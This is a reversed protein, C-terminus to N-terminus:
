RTIVITAIGLIGEGTALRIFVKGTVNPLILPITQEGESLSGISQTSLMRGAADFFQLTLAPVAKLLGVKLSAKESAPNPIVEMSTISHDLMRVANNGTTDAPKGKGIGHLSVQLPSGEAATITLTGSETSAIVPHFTIYVTKTASANITFPAYPSDVVFMYSGSIQLLNIAAPATGTNTITFSKQVSSGSDVTQFDLSNESLSLKSDVGRGSLQIVHTNSTSEDTVITLSATYSQQAGATFRIKIKASTSDKAAITHVASDLVTFAKSPDNLTYKLIKVPATGVNRLTISSDKSGSVKVDGFSVTNLVDFQSNTGIGTLYVTDISHNPDDGHIVAMGNVQGTKTPIFKFIIQAKNKPGVTSPKSFVTFEAPTIDITGLTLDYTGTNSVDLGITTGTSGARVNGFKITDVILDAMKPLGAQGTILMQKAPAGQDDNNITVLASDIREITPLYSIGVTTTASPAVMVAGGGNLVFKAGQYQTGFVISSIHLTDDGTNGITLTGNKGGGAKALGVDYTAPADIVPAIGTGSLAIDSIQVGNQATMSIKGTSALRAAPSFQVTMTGSASPPLVTPTPGSVITFTGAGTSVSANSIFLTDDGTNSFNYTIQKNTGKKVNGFPISTQGSFIAQIGTGSVYIAKRADAASPSTANSVIVLSDNFAGRSTPAFSITETESTGTTINRQGNTGGSSNNSFTTGVNFNTSTITVNSQDGGAAIHMTDTYTGGVRRSGFPVALRSPTVTRVPAIVNLVFKQAFNWNDSCNGSGNTGDNNVANGNAYITDAGATSPATYTFSWTAPLTKPSSHTLQSNSSQLGDNGATLSGRYVSIDCGGKSEGSNAVTITFSITQGAQVTTSSSTSLTVSTNASPNACHCTCGPSDGPKQTVGTMGTSHSTAYNAIFIVTAFLLLGISLSRWHTLLRSTSGINKM